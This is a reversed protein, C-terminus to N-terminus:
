FKIVVFDDGCVIKMFCYFGIFSVGSKKEEFVM